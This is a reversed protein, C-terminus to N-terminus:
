IKNKSTKLLAAAQPQLHLHHPSPVLGLHSVQETNLPGQDWKPLCLQQRGQRGCGPCDGLIVLARGPCYTM